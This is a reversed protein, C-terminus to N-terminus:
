KRDRVSRNTKHIFRVSRNTKNAIAFQATRKAAHAQSTTAGCTKPARSSARRHIAPQSEAVSLRLAVGAEQANSGAPYQAESKPRESGSILRPPRPAREQAREAHTGVHADAAHTYQARLRKCKPTGLHASSSPTYKTNRTQTNCNRLVHGIPTRILFFFSFGDTLLCPLVTM